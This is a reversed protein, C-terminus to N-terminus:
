RRRKKIKQPPEARKAYQDPYERHYSKGKKLMRLFKEIVYDRGAPGVHEESYGLCCALTYVAKRDNEGFRVIYIGYDENWVLAYNNPCQYTINVPDDLVRRISTYGLRKLVQGHTGTCTLARLSKPTTTKSM